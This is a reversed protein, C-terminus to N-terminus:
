RGRRTRRRLVQRATGRYGTGPLWAIVPEAAIVQVPQDFDEWFRAALNPHRKIVTGVADRLRHPDLEGALAIDLQVAYINDAGRTFTSHFLLGQQVPTLPM